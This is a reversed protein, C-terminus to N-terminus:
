KTSEGALRAKVAGMRNWVFEYISSTPDYPDRGCTPGEKHYEMIKMM